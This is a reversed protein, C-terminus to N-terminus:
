SRVAILAPLFDDAQFCKPTVAVLRVKPDMPQNASKLSVPGPVTRNRFVRWSSSFVLLQQVGTTWLRPNTYVRM